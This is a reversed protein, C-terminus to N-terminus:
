SREKELLSIKRALKTVKNELDINKTYLKFLAFFTFIIAVYIVVDVGRGIGLSEAIRGLLNPWLVVALAVIWMLIWFFKFLNTFKKRSFAVFTQILVLIIILSLLIQGGTM